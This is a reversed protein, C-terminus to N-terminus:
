KFIKLNKLVSFNLRIVSFKYIYIDGIGCISTKKLSNTYDIDCSSM